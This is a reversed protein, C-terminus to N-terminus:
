WTKYTKQRIESKQNGKKNRIPRIESKQNGKKNRIPRIESKQNGEKNRISGKQRVESPDKRDQKINTGKPRRGGVNMRLGM